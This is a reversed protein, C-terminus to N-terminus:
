LTIRNLFSMCPSGTGPNEAFRCIALPRVFYDRHKLLYGILLFIMPWWDFCSRFRTLTSADFLSNMRGELFPKDVCDLTYAFNAPRLCQCINHLPFFGQFRFWGFSSSIWSAVSSITPTRLGSIKGGEESFFRLNDRGLRLQIHDLLRPPSITGRTRFPPRPCALSLHSSKM